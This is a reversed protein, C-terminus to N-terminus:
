GACYSACYVRKSWSFAKLRIARFVVYIYRLIMRSETTIKVIVKAIESCKWCALYAKSSCFHWLYHAVRYDDGSLTIHIVERYLISSMDRSDDSNRNSWKRISEVLLFAASQNTRKIIFYVRGGILLVATLLM